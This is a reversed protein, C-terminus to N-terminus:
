QNQRGVVDIQGVVIFKCIKLSRSDLEEKCYEQRNTSQQCVGGPNSVLDGLIRVRKGEYRSFVSMSTMGRPVDPVGRDYKGRYKFIPMLNRGCLSETKKGQADCLEELYRPVSGGDNLTSDFEILHSASWNDWCSSEPGRDMADLRALNRIITGVFTSKKSGEIKEQKDCGVISLLLFICVVVSLQLKQTYSIVTLFHTAIVM